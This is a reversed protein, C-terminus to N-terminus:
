EDSHSVIGDRLLNSTIMVAYDKSFKEISSPNWSKSQGSWQLTENQVDYVNAEIFYTKDETYYGPSYVGGYRYGYYGGFGGYYGGYMGMTPYTSTGQVYRTESKEDLLAMTLVADCGLERMKALIANKRATTDMSANPNVHDLSAIAEVGRTAFVQKVKNEFSQRAELNQTIGVVFVKKFPINTSTAEPTWKGVLETNSGCSVVFLTLLMSLSLVAIKKM